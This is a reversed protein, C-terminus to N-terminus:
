QGFVIAYPGGLMDGIVNRFGQSRIRGSNVHHHFYCNLIRVTVLIEQNKRTECTSLDPHMNFLIIVGLFRSASLSDALLLIILIHKDTWPGYGAAEVLYSEVVMRIDHVSAM